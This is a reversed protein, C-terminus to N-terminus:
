KPLLKTLNGRSNDGTGIGVIGSIDDKTWHSRILRLYLDRKVGETKEPLNMSLVVDRPGGFLSRAGNLRKVCDEINDRSCEVVLVHNRGKLQGLEKEDIPTGATITVMLPKTAAQLADRLLRPYPNVLNLTVNNAEMAKIADRGADTIGDDFWCRDDKPVDIRGFEILTATTELLPISGGLIWADRIGTQFPAAPQRGMRMMAPFAPRPERDRKRLDKARDGAVRILEATSKAKVYSWNGQRDGLVDPIEMRMSNYIHQRDPILLNTGTENALNLTGQLVFQGTKGLIDPEIKAPDDGSDHYDPHGGGGSTMLALSEIGLEIFPTHDSGGPGGTRAEVLKMLEPDQDRKIVEWIEPFNLAGPAGIRTGLGVMDMNFNAVVRDMSVGDAPKEAYHRSGLLGLEEGCWLGIIVTRKTQLKNQTMLRAIEMAVASGSANDDAGNYIVGDTVGVHDLHAGIVIYQNKLEPDTGEIKGLINRSINNKFKEGFATVSEYGKLQARIGTATTRVKKAKIDRRLQDIRSAFGRTSEQPDRSLIWRFVREDINNVYV